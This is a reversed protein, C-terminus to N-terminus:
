TLGGGDGGADVFAIDLIAPAVLGNTLTFAPTWALLFLKLRHISKKHTTQDEIRLMSVREEVVWNRLICADEVDTCSASDYTDGSTEHKTMLASAEKTPPLYQLDSETLYAAVVM